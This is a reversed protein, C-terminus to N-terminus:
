ISRHVAVLMASFILLDPRIIQVVTCAVLDLPEADFIEVTAATRNDFARQEVIPKNEKEEAQQQRNKKPIARQMHADTGHEVLHNGDML